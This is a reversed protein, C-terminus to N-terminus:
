GSVVPAGQPPVPASSPRQWPPVKVMGRRRAACGPLARPQLMTGFCIPCATEDEALNAHLLQSPLLAM